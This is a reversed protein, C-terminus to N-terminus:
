SALVVLLGLGRAHAHLGDSGCALVLLSCREDDAYVVTMVTLMSHNQGEDVVVRDRTMLM